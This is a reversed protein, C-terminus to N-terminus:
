EDLPRLRWESIRSLKIRIENELGIVATHARNEPEPFHEVILPPINRVAEV